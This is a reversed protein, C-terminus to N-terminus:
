DETKQLEVFDYCSCADQSEQLQSRLLQNHFEKEQRASICHDFDNSFQYLLAEMSLLWDASVIYLDNGKYIIGEDDLFDQDVSIPFNSHDNYQPKPNYVESNSPKYGLFVSLSFILLALHIAPNDLYTDIKNM